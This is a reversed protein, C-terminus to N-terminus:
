GNSFDGVNKRFLQAIIAANTRWDETGDMNIVPCTLTQAWQEIKEPPRLAVFEEFKQQQNYMDGGYCVRKGHQAYARQKVREIRLERPAFLHVALKYYQPIENGFNGTVASLVFSGHKKIDALMLEICEAELRQQTYPIDSKKFGYTEHDMHYFNLVRAVERGLTTKGSGNAGFLIIGCPDSM